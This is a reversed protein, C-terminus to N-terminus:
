GGNRLTRSFFPQRRGRVLLRTFLGNLVVLGGLLLLLQVLERWGGFVANMSYYPLCLYSLIQIGPILVALNIFVPTLVASACVYGLAAVWLTGEQIRLRGLLNCFLVVIIDYIILYAIEKISLFGFGCLGEAALGAASVLFVPVTVSVVSLRRGARGPLAAEVGRKRDQLYLSVGCFGALLVLLALCGRIPAVLYDGLPKGTGTSNRYSFAFTKQEKLNKAYEQSVEGETIRETQFLGSQRIYDHLIMEGQQRFIESLVVEDAITYLMSGKRYYRTVVGPYQHRSYKEEMDKPFYYGCELDGQQVAQRLEEKSELRLFRMIGPHRQLGQGIRGSLSGEGECVVGIRVSTEDRHAVYSFFFTAIPVTLLLLVFIKQRLFRKIYKRIWVSM